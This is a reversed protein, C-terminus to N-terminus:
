CQGISSGVSFFNGALWSVGLYVSAGVMGFNLVYYSSSFKVFLFVLCLWCTGEADRVKVM